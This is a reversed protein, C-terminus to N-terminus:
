KGTCEWSSTLHITAGSSTQGYYYAREYTVKSLRSTVTVKKGKSRLVKGTEQKIPAAIEQEQLALLRETLKQGM